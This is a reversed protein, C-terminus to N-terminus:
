PGDPRECLTLWARFKSQLGVGDRLRSCNLHHARGIVALQDFSTVEDPGSESPYFLRFRRQDYRGSVAPRTHRYVAAAM